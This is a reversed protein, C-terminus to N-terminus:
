IPIVSFRYIAKAVRSIKVFNIRGTWSRKKNKMNEKKFIEKITTSPSPVNNANVCTRVINSIYWAQIRGEGRRRVSV